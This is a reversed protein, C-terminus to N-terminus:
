LTIERLDTSHDLSVQSAVICFQEVASEATMRRTRM